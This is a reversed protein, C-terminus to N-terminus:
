ATGQFIFCYHIPKSLIAPDLFGEWSSVARQASLKYSKLESYRPAIDAHM